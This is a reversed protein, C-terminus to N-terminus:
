VVSAKIRHADYCLRGNGVVYMSKPSLSHGFESGKECFIVPQHEEVGFGGAQLKIPVLDDLEGGHHHFLDGTDGRHRLLVILEDSQGGAAEHGRLDLLEGANSGLVELFPTQGLGPHGPVDGLHDGAVGQQQGVVGM